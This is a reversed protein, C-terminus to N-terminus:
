WRPVSAFLRGMASTIEEGGDARQHGPVGFSNRLHELWARINGLVTYCKWVSQSHGDGNQRFAFEGQRSSGSFVTQPQSHQLLSPPPRLIIRISPLTSGATSGLSIMSPGIGWSMVM